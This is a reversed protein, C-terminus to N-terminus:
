VGATEKQSFFLVQELKWDFKPCGSGAWECVGHWSVTDTGATDRLAKSDHWDSVTSQWLTM